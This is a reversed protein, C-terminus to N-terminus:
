QHNRLKKLLLLGRYSISIEGIHAHKQM